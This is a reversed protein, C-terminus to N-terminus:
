CLQADRTCVLLKKLSADDKANIAQSVLPALLPAIEFRVLPSKDNLLPRLMRWRTQLDAFILASVASARVMVNEDNLGKSIASLAEGTPFNSLNNILSARIFAPL